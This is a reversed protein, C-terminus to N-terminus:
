LLISQNGKSINKQSASYNSVGKYWRQLPKNTKFIATLIV